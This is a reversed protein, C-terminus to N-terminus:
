RTRKRMPALVFVLGLGMIPDLLWVPHLGLVDGLWVVLSVLGWVMIALLLYARIGVYSYRALKGAAATGVDASQQQSESSTATGRQGKV